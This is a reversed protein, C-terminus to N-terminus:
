IDETKNSRFFVKHSDPIPITVENYGTKVRLTLPPATEPRPKRCPVHAVFNKNYHSLVNTVHSMHLLTQASTTPVNAVHSMHSKASTTPHKRCPVHTIPNQAFTAQSTQSMPCIYRVNNLPFASFKELLSNPRKHCSVYAIPHAVAKQVCFIWVSPTPVTHLLVSRVECRPVV